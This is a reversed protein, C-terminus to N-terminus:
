PELYRALKEKLVARARFLLSKVAAVSMGLLAAIEEYAMEEHRRLLVAVRQKEPLGAIAADVAAAMEKDILTADPSAAEEDAFQRERGEADHLDPANLSQHQHRQRRRMENLVLNRMIRFMWTTVKASPEWRSANRWIRVFVVQALDEADTADGVMRAIVGIVRAKHRDVLAEFATMDGARVRQMLQVDVGDEPMQPDFLPSCDSM